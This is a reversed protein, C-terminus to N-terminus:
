INCSHQRKVLRGPNNWNKIFAGNDKSSNTSTRWYSHKTDLLFNSRPWLIQKCKCQPATERGWKCWYNTFFYQSYSFSSHYPSRDPEQTYICVRIAQKVLWSKEQEWNYSRGQSDGTSARSGCQREDKVKNLRGFGKGWPRNTKMKQHNLCTLLTIRNHNRCSTKIPLGLHSSSEGTKQAKSSGSKFHAM